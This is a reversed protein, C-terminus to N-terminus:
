YESLHHQTRIANGEQNNLTKKRSCLKLTECVPSWKASSWKVQTSLLHRNLPKLMRHNIDYTCANESFHPSGHSSDCDFVSNRAPCFHMSSPEFFTCKRPKEGLLIPNSCNHQQIEFCNGSGVKQGTYVTYRFM